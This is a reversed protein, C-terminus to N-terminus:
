FLGHGDVRRDVVGHATEPHIILQHGGDVAQEHEALGIKGIVAGVPEPSRGQHLSQGVAVKDQGVGHAVVQGPGPEAIEGDAVPFIVLGLRIDPGPGFPQQFVTAPWLAFSQPLHIMVMALQATQEPVVAAHGAVPLSQFVGQGPDRFDPLFKVGIDQHGAAAGFEILGQLPGAPHRIEQLEGFGHDPVGQFALFRAATMQALLALGLFVLGLSIIGM